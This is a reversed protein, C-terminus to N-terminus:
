PFRWPKSCTTKGAGNEGYAVNIGAGLEIESRELNRMGVTSVVTVVAPRATGAPSPAIDPSSRIDDDSNM